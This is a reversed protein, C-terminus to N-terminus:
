NEKSNRGPIQPKLTSLKKSYSDITITSSVEIVHHRSLRIDETGKIVETAIYAPYHIIPIKM